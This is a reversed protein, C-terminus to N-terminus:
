NCAPYRGYNPSCIRMRGVPDLDIRVQFQNSSSSLTLNTLNTPDAILTGRVPEFSLTGQSGQAPNQMTVGPHDGGDVVRSVTSGTVQDFYVLSTRWPPGGVAALTVDQSRKASESKALVVQAQVAEVAASLRQREFLGQVAPVVLMTLIVGVALTVMLEILTFGGAPFSLRLSMNKRAM